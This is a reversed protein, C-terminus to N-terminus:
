AAAPDSATTLPQGGNDAEVHRVYATFDTDAGLGDRAAAWGARAAAIMPLTLKLDQGLTAALGVDKAM